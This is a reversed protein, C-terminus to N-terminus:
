KTTPVELVGTRVQVLKIIQCLWTWPVRVYANILARYFVPNQHFDWTIHSPSLFVQTMEFWM